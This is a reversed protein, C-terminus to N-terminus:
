KNDEEFAKQLEIWADVYEAYVECRSYEKCVHCVQRFHKQQCKTLRKRAKIFRGAAKRLGRKKKM